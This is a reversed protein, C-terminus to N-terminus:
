AADRRPAIIRTAALSAKTEPAAGALRPEIEAALRNFADFAAGFEDRRRHSLRFGFGAEAADDLASQLRTLPRAVLAGSLYGVALVALMVLAALTGLLQKSQLLADDLPQRRLVLDVTGFRAGAYRIPEVFRLGAGHGNDPAASVAAGATAAVPAEGSQARYRQGVLHPDGAARITGSADAVIAGRIEQDRAASVVFAQLASWDQQAPDLGANDAMLLASNQTVFGAISNGSLVAM